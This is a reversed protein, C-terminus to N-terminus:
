ALMSGLWRRRYGDLALGDFFPIWLRDQAHKIIRRYEALSRLRDWVDGDHQGIVFDIALMPCLPPFAIRPGPSQLLAQWYGADDRRPLARGPVYNLSGAWGDQAHGGRQFHILPHPERPTGAFNHTDVRWHDELEVLCHNYDADGTVRVQFQALVPLRTNAIDPGLDFEFRMEAGSLECGVPHLGVNRPTPVPVPLASVLTRNRQWSHELGTYLRLLVEGTRESEPVRRLQEGFAALEEPITEWSM